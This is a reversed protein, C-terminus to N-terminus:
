TKVLCAGFVAMELVFVFIKIFFCKQVCTVMPDQLVNTQFSTSFTESFKWQISQQINANSNVFIRKKARWFILYSCKVHDCKYSFVDM